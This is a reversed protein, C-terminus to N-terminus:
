PSTISISVLWQFKYRCYLPISFWNPSNENLFVLPMKIQPFHITKLSGYYIMSLLHLNKSKRKRQSKSQSKINKKLSSSIKRRWQSMRTKSYYPSLNKTKKLFVYSTWHTLFFRLIFTSFIPQTFIKSDGFNKPLNASKGIKRRAWPKPKVRDKPERIFECHM